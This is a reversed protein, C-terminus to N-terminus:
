VIMFDQTQIELVWMLLWAHSPPLRSGSSCGSGSALWASTALELKLALRSRLIYPPCSSLIVCSALRLCTFVHVHTYAYVCVYLVYAIVTFSQAFQDRIFYLLSDWIVEEVCEDQFPSAQPDIHIGSALGKCLIVNAYLRYLVEWVNQTLVEFLLFLIYITAM